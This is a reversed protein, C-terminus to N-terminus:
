AVGPRVRDIVSRDATALRVSRLIHIAQFAVFPRTDEINTLVERYVGDIFEWEAGALLKKAAAAGHSFDDATPAQAANTQPVRAVRQGDIHVQAARDIRSVGDPRVIGEAQGTKRISVQKGVAVVPGALAGVENRTDRQHQRVCTK